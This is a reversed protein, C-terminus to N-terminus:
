LGREHMSERQSGYALHYCHRCAFLRGAAYLTTVRRGCQGANSRGSCLFWPREGGFRCLTWDIAIRQEVDDWAEGYTQHRYKLTVFSRQTNLNIFATRKGDRTWVWPFSQPTCFFRLRNWHLVDISRCTEVTRKGGHSHRAM